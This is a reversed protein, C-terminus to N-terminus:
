RTKKIEKDFSILMSDKKRVYYLNLYNSQSRVDQLKKQITADDFSAPVDVLSVISELQFLTRSFYNGFFETNSKSDSDVIINQQRELNKRSMRVSLVNSIALTTLILIIVIFAMRKAISGNKRVAKGSNSRQM